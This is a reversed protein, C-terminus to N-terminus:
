GSALQTIKPLNILRESGWHGRRYHLFLLVFEEYFNTIILYAMYIAGSSEQNTWGLHEICVQIQKQTKM